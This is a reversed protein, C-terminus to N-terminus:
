FSYKVGVGFRRPENFGVWSVGPKSMYSSVCDEDTINNIYSFVDFNKTKYGVKINSTIGGNAEVLDDNNAGDIFTTKGKAHIDVRGYLGKEQMYALGLSATYRPTGEIREDKYDRTGNNYEDYKADILGFAASLQVNDTIYYSGDLELGQSYAKEANSTAFITGGMLQKYVHIDKIDMRFLALNIAYNEGLHKLGLEYNISKQAEFSNQSSNDSSPYFNFGGPMYGKSVSFYSSTDENLHYMLALKPLFTNWTKEDTYNVDPNSTGAWSSKATVDIDKKIRQYRGGLTLEFDEGLPIMTQGFIAQTKSNANSYADGIYVSGMYLQEAGFPGQARDEKDFYLGTVWKIDQNKSSLRLEQTWAKLETYNFQRLGDSTTNSTNDTDYEGDFDVRKHTTISELRMKEFEYNLNISESKVKTREYAPVDFNVNKADERKLKNIDISPDTSFGDMFYDKKYNNTLTVKASFKENPEFLLFANTKRDRKKNANDDMGSYNNTIWGDDSKFSGNIGAFLKNEIIAGSTYFSTKYLNDSGYEALVNGSWENTPTKTIINIVAGIADKGYLTGQPGRLVEIRDINELSPDFDVRDYYAVGDVYIVIPNNNTFMSTNLGRFSSLGGTTSNQFNMNPIERIVESIKKIGKEEIVSEDLVSISQPVDKINEEVKNATVTISDLNTSKNDAYILTSCVLSLLIIKKNM